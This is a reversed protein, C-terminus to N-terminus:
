KLYASQIKRDWAEIDEDSFKGCVDSYKSKVGNVYFTSNDALKQKNIELWKSFTKVMYVYKRKDGSHHITLPYNFAIKEDDNKKIQKKFMGEHDDFEFSQQFVHDVLHGHYDLTINGQKTGYLWGMFGQDEMCGIPSKSIEHWFAALLNRYNSVLGLSVGSNLYKNNPLKQEKSLKEQMECGLANEEKEDKYFLSLSNKAHLNYFREGSYKLCRYVKNYRKYPWCNLESNFIVKNQYENNNRLFDHYKNYFSKPDMQYFVDFSDAHIILVNEPLKEIVASLAIWKTFPGFVPNHLKTIVRDIVKPGVLQFQFGSLLASKISLCLEVNIRDSYGFLQVEDKLPADIVTKLYEIYERWEYRPVTLLKQNTVNENNYKMYFLM